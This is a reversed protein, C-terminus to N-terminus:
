SGTNGAAQVLALSLRTALRSDRNTIRDVKNGSSFRSGLNQCRATTAVMRNQTLGTWIACEDAASTKKLVEWHWYLWLFYLYIYIYLRWVIALKMLKGLTWPLDARALYTGHLALSNGNISETERYMRHTRKTSLHILNFRIQTASSHAIIGLEKSRSHLGNAISLRLWCVFIESEM